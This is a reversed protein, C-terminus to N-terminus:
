GIRELYARRAVEHDLVSGSRVIHPLRCIMRQDRAQREAVALSTNRTSVYDECEVWHVLKDAM